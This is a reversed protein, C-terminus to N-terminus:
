ISIDIGITRERGSFFFHCYSTYDTTNRRLLPPQLPHPFLRVWNKFFLHMKLLGCDINADTMRSLTRKGGLLACRITDKIRQLEPPLLGGLTRCPSSPTAPFFPLSFHKGFSFKGASSKRGIRGGQYKIAKARGAAYYKRKFLISPPINFPEKKWM